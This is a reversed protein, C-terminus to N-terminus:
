PFKGRIKGREIGGDRDWQNKLTRGGERGGESSRKENKKKNEKKKKKKKEEKIGNQVPGAGEV